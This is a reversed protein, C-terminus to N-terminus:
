TLGEASKTIIRPVFRPGGVRGMDSKLQKAQDAPVLLIDLMSCLCGGPFSLAGLQLFSQLYLRTIKDEQTAQAATGVIM